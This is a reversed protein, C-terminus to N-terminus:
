VRVRMDLKGAYFLIRTRYNKFSRFGRANAKINQIITNIGETIGNSIHFTIYSLLGGLHERLMVAVKMMEPLKSRIVLTYRRDFFYKAQDTTSSYWFEDFLEKLRWAKSVKLNLKSLDDFKQKERDKWKDKNKLWLFKTHLLYPLRQKILDLHEKRRISNVATNLYKSIHFRDYVIASLPCCENVALRFARWTDMCTAEISQLTETSLVSLAQKTSGITRGPAVELVRHGELDVVNTIYSHAKMFSKEDVGLYKVLSTDRRAIGRIVAQEQTYQIQKWSLGTISCADKTTKTSKLIQLVYETFLTTYRVLSDAFPTSVTKVGHGKCNSRPVKRVLYSKFQMVDLHRWRREERHDELVCSTHCVPCLAKHGKDYHTDILMEKKDIVLETHSVSWPHEIGLLRTYHDILSDNTNM